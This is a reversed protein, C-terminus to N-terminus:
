FAYERGCAACVWQGAHNDRSALRHGCACVYGILKAPNGVVLGYAPINRTVVAGAGVM